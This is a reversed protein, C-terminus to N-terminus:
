KKRARRGVTLIKNNRTDIPAAKNEEYNFTSQVSIRLFFNYCVEDRSKNVESWCKKRLFVRTSFDESHTSLLSRYVTFLVHHENSFCTGEM